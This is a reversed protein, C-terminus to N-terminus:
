VAYKNLISKNSVFEEIFIEERKMVEKNYKELEKEKLKELSSIEMNANVIEHRKAEIKKLIINKEEEKKETQKLVNNMYMKYYTMEGVSVSVACKGNLEENLQKFESKLKKIQQEATDLDRNLNGMEIKLNDLVQEKIELIKQLSFSFKKM